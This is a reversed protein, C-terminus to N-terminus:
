APVSAVCGIAERLEDPILPGMLRDYLDKRTAYQTLAVRRYATAIDEFGHFVASCYRFLPTLEAEPETLVVRWVSKEPWSTSRKLTHVRGLVYNVQREYLIEVGRDHFSQWERALEIMEPKHLREPGPPRGGPHNSFLCGVLSDPSLNHTIALEAAPFWVSQKYRRGGRDVGGDYRSMAKQDDGFYSKCGTDLEEYRRRALIYKTRIEAAVSRLLEKSFQPETQTM